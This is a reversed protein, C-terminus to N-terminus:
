TGIMEISFNNFEADALTNLSGGSGQYVHLTLIDTAVCNVTKTVYRNCTIASGDFGAVLAFTTGNKRLVVRRQGVANADFSIAGSVRYKGSVPVTYEGTTANFASNSDFDVTTFNTVATLTSGPISQSTSKTASFNVNAPISTDVYNKTAVDQASSPDVVNVIKRTNIDLDTGSWDLKTTAGSLLQSNNVSLKNTASTDQLISTNVTGAYAVNWRGTSSNGLDRAAPSDALLNVNVATPATLNSLTLNAGGGTVAADVYAKTTLDNAVTPTGANTIKQGNFDVAAAPLINDLNLNAKTAVVNLQTQIASTVGGVYGLETATVTTSVVHGAGDSALARSATVAELQDLDITSVTTLVTGTENPLTVTRDATQSGQITTTFGDTGGPVINIVSPTLTNEKFISIGKLIRQLGFM